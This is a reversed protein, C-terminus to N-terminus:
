DEWKIVYETDIGNQSYKCESPTPKYITYGKETLIAIITDIYPKRLFITIQPKKAKLILNELNNLIVKIEEKFNNKTVIRAKEASPFDIGGLYEEMLSTAKKDAIDNKEEDIFNVAKLMYKHITRTAYDNQSLEKIMGLFIKNLEPCDFDFDNLIQEKLAAIADLRSTYTGISEGDHIAEYINM